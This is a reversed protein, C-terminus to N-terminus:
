QTLSIMMLVLAEKDMPDIGLAPSSGNVVLGDRSRVGELAAVRVVDGSTLPM